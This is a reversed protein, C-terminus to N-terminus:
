PKDPWTTNNKKSNESKTLIQLNAPVHLGCVTKGRLPVVHDVAHPIGTEKTLRKAEAYFTQLAATDTWKPMAKLKAARRISAYQAIKHSNNKSWQKMYDYWKLTNKEIWAQHTKTSHQRYNDYDTTNLKVHRQKGSTIARERFDVDTQYRIKATQLVCAVCNHTCVFREAVHGHKCSKGTFYRKNGAKLAENRSQLTMNRM